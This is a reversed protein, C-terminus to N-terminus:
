DKIPYGCGKCFGDGADQCTSRYHEKDIIGDRYIPECRDPREIRSNMDGYYFKVRVALQLLAEELDKGGCDLDTDHCGIWKNHQNWGGAPEPMGNEDQSMDYWGGGELWVQFLTNKDDDDDISMTEPNVYVPTIDVCESFSGDGVDEKPWDDQSAGWCDGKFDAPPVVVIYEHRWLPHDLILKILQRQETLDTPISQADRHCKHM